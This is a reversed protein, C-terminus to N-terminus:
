SVVTRGIGPMRGSFSAGEIAASGQAELDKSVREWDITKVRTATSKSSAIPTVTKAAANM